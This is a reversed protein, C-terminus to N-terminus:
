SSFDPRGIEIVISWTEATLRWCSPTLIASHVSRYNSSKTRHLCTWGWSIKLFSPLNIAFDVESCSFYSRMFRSSIMALCQELSDGSSQLKPQFNLICLYVSRNYSFFM